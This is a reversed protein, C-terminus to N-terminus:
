TDMNCLESNLLINQSIRLTGAVKTRSSSLKIVKQTDKWLYEICTCDNPYNCPLKSQEM